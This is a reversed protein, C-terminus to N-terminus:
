DEDKIRGFEIKSPTDKDLYKYANLIDPTYKETLAIGQIMKERDSPSVALLEYKCNECFLRWYDIEEVLRTISYKGEHLCKSCMLNLSFMIDWGKMRTTRVVIM